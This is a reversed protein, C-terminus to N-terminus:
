GRQRSEDAGALNPVRAVSSSPARVTVGHKFDAGRAIVDDSDPGAKLGAKM